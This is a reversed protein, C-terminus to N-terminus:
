KKIRKEIPDDKPYLVDVQMKTFDKDWFKGSSNDVCFKAVMRNALDDDQTKESIFPFKGVLYGEQYRPRLATVPVINQLKLL